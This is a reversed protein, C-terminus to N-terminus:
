ADDGFFKPLKLQLLRRYESLFRDFFPQSTRARRVNRVVALSPLAGVEDHARGPLSRGQGTRGKLLEMLMPGLSFEGRESRMTLDRLTAHAHHFIARGQAKPLIAERRVIVSLNRPPVIPQLRGNFVSM